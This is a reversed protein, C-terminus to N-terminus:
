DNMGASKMARYVDARDTTGTLKAPANGVDLVGLCERPASSGVPSGGATTAAQVHPDIQYEQRIAYM